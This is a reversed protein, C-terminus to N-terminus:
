GNEAMKAVNKRFWGTGQPSVLTEFPDVMVQLNPKRDLAQYLPVQALGPYGTFLIVQLGGSIGPNIQDFQDKVRLCSTSSYTQVMEFVDEPRFKRGAFKVQIVNNIPRLALSSQNDRDLWYSNPSFDKCFSATEDYSVGYYIRSYVKTGRLFQKYTKSEYM